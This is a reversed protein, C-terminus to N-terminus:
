YWQSLLCKEEPLNYRFCELLFWCKVIINYMKNVVEPASYMFFGCCTEVFIVFLSFM